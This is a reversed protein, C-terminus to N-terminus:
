ILCVQIMFSFFISDWSALFGVLPLQSYKMLLMGLKDARGLKIPSLNITLLHVLSTCVSSGKVWLIYRPWLFLLAPSFGNYTSDLIVCLFLVYENFIFTTSCCIFLYFHESQPLLALFSSWQHMIAKHVQIIIHLSKQKRSTQVDGCAFTLPHFLFM